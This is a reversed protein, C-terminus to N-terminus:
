QATVKTAYGSMAVSIVPAGLNGIGMMQTALLLIPQGGQGGLSVEGDLVISTAKISAMTQAELSVQQGSLTLASQAKVTVQQGALMASGQAQVIWNNGQMTIDQQALLNIQQQASVNFNKQASNTINGQATLTSDGGKAHEQTVGANSFQISGDTLVQLITTGQTSDLPNGDNDTAGKFTVACSGDDNVAINVGNFQGQLNNGDGLNTKRNPHNIAGMIVAKESVGDLCLLLVVAGNQDSINPTDVGGGSSDQVRYTKEFFDTISGLGDSSICNRYLISTSGRDENQEFVLVDYETTLKSLNQDSDVPYGAIVVGIRLSMNKYTKNFGAMDAARNHGLLGYPLVTGNDLYNDSM